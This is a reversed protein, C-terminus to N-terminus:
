SDYVPKGLHSCGSRIFLCNEKVTVPLKPKSGRIKSALVDLFNSIHEKSDYHGDEADHSCVEHYIVRERFECDDGSVREDFFAKLKVYSVGAGDTRPLERSECAVGVWDLGGRRDRSFCAACVARDAFEDIEDVSKVSIRGM